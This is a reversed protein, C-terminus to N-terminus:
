KEAEAIVRELFDTKAIPVTEQRGSYQLILNQGAVMVVEVEKGQAIFVSPITASRSTARFEVDQRLKVRAPIYKQIRAAEAAPRVRTARLASEIPEPTPTTIPAPPTSVATARLPIVPPSPSSVAVSPPAKPTNVNSLLGLLWLAIVALGAAYLWKTKNMPPRPMSPPSQLTPVTGSTRNVGKGHVHTYSVGTGPIGVSTRSGRTGITHRLGRGGFTFSTGSKGINWRVGPLIKFSKRFRFFGM